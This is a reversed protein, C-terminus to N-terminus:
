STIGREKKLESAFMIEPDIIVFKGRSRALLVGKANRLEGVNYLARGDTRLISGEVVLPQDLPVPRLYDVEMRSTVAIKGELKNAKGMAEDLITAIIGGHAHGPPGGFNSGIEFECVYSKGEPSLVFKLHLGIPNQSGCGFCLDRQWSPSPVDPDDAHKLKVAAGCMRFEQNTRNLTITDIRITLELSFNAASSYIQTTFASKLM